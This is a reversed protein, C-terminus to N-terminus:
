HKIKEFFRDSLTVGLAQSLPAMRRTWKHYEAMKAALAAKKKAAESPEKPKRERPERTERPPKSAKQRPAAGQADLADMKARAAKFAEDDETPKPASAPARSRKAPPERYLEDKAFKDKVSKKVGSKGEKIKKVKPEEKSVKNVAAVSKKKSLPNVPPEALAAPPPPPVEPAVVPPPTPEALPGSPAVEAAPKPKVVPPKGRMSRGFVKQAGEAVDIATNGIDQLVGGGTSPSGKEKAGGGLARSIMRFPATKIALATPIAASGAGSGVMERPDFKGEELVQHTGTLGMGALGKRAATRILGPNELFPLAKGVVRSFKAAPLLEGGIQGVTTMAPHEAAAQASKAAPDEEGGLWTPMAGSIKDALGFSMTNAAKRVGADVASMADQLQPIAMAPGGRSANASPGPAPATPTAPVVPTAPANAPEKPVNKKRLPEFQKFFNDSM